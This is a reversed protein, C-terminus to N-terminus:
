RAEKTSSQDPLNVPFGKVIVDVDVNVNTNGEPLKVYSNFIVM